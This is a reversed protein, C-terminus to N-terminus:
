MQYRWAFEAASMEWGCIEAMSVFGQEEDYGKALRYPCPDHRYGNERYVAERVDNIEELVSERCGNFTFGTDLASYLTKEWDDGMTEYLRDEILEEVDYDKKM